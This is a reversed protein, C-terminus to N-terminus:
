KAIWILFGDIARYTSYVALMGFGFFMVTEALQKMGNEKENYPNFLV